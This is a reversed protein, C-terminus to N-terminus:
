EKLLQSMLKVLISDLDIVYFPMTSEAKYEKDETKVSIYYTDGPTGGVSTSEYVGDTTETLLESNGRSDSITVM